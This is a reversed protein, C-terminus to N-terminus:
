LHAQNVYLMKSHPFSVLLGSFVPSVCAFHVLLYSYKGGLLIIQTQSATNMPCSFVQAEMDAGCCIGLYSILLYCWLMYGSLFDTFLVVAYVLYSIRLYLVPFLSFSPLWPCSQTSCLSSCGGGARGWHREPELPAESDPLLSCPRQSGPLHASVV